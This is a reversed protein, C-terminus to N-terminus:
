KKSQRAGTAPYLTGMPFIDRDKAPIQFRSFDRTSIMDCVDMLWMFNSIYAYFRARDLCAPSINYYRHIRKLFNEGLHDLLMGLDFAPDGFGANCFGIIGNIRASAEDFLIHCPTLDGHIIVPRFEFFKENDIAPQIIQRLYEKVYNSCYPFIKRQVTELEVLWEERTRNMQSNNIKVYEAKKVPINHLQHLFVAIQKAVTDQTRYDLKLLINRYLPSGKIYRRMSINKDILEAEPLPMDIFNQIFRIVDAENRLYFTSWDYKAFKFVVENNVIVIDSYSGDSNNFEVKSLSMQPCKSKILEIYKLENSNM